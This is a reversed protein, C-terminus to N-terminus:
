LVCRKRHWRLFAPGRSIEFTRRLGYLCGQGTQGNVHVESVLLDKQQAVRHVRLGGEERLCLRHHLNYLHM